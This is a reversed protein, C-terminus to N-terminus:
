GLAKLHFLEVEDRLAGWVFVPRLGGAAYATASVVSEHLEAAPLLFSYKTKNVFKIKPAKTSLWTRLQNPGYM